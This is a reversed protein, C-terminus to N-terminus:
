LFNSSIYMSFLCVSFSKLKCSFPHKELNYDQPLCWVYHTDPHCHNTDLHQLLSGDQETLGYRPFM